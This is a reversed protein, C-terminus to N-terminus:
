EVVRANLLAAIEEMDERSLPPAEDVLRKVRDSWAATRYSARAEVLELDDAQRDRSLAAIRARHHRAESSQRGM